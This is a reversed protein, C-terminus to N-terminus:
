QPSWAHTQQHEDLLHPFAFAKDCETCEYVVQGVHSEQHQKLQSLFNFSKYCMDCRYKGVEKEAHKRMHLALDEAKDFKANCHTCTFNKEPPPTQNPIRHKEHSRQEHRRVYSRLAFAKGCYKCAFPKESHHQKNQHELLLSKSSFQMSCASCNYLEEETVDIEEEEISDALPSKKASPNSCDSKSPTHQRYSCSHQRLADRGLFSEGCDTCLCERDSSLSHEDDEARAKSSSKTESKNESLNDFHTPFHGILESARTFCQECVPCMFENGTAGVGTSIADHSKLHSLFQQGTYSYNCQNCPYEKKSWPLQHVTKHKKLHSAHLFHKDCVSCSFTREKTAMCGHESLEEPDVFRKGCVGCRYKLEKSFVSSSDSLSDSKEQKEASVSSSPTGASTSHIKRHEARSSKSPFVQNCIDCPFNEERHNSMHEALQTAGTFSLQCMSCRYPRSKGHTPKHKRLAFLSIFGKGCLQCQFESKHMRQHQELQSQQFFCRGCEACEHPKEGLHFRQHDELIESTPFTKGCVHCPFYPASDSDSDDSANKGDDSESTVNGQTSSQQETSVKQQAARELEREKQHRTRIHRELSKKVCYLKKCFRCNYTENPHEGAYHDCLSPRTWFRNNCLKCLYPRQEDHYTKHDELEELTYFMNPCDPCSHTKTIGHIKMHKELSGKSSCVRQCKSCTNRKKEQEQRGHDELHSILMLGDTFSMDCESCQYKEKTSSCSGQVEKNGNSIEPSKDVSEDRSSFNTQLVGTGTTKSSDKFVIVSDALAFDIEAKLPGELEQKSDNKISVHGYRCKRSHNRYLNKNWFGRNCTKCNFPHQTSHIRRHGTLGAKSAFSMNCETCFFIKPKETNPTDDPTCIANPFASPEEHCSEDTPEEKINSINSLHHQLPATSEPPVMTELKHENLFHDQLEGFLSFRSSCYACSFGETSSQCSPQQSQSVESKSMSCSKKHEEFSAKHLHEGCGDCPIKSTKQKETCKILHRQVYDKRIFRQGCHDCAYPREGTHLRNHVKLQWNYEFTRPCYSCVYKHKKNLYPQISHLVRNRVGNLPKTVDESPQNEQPTSLDTQIPFKRCRKLKRHSKLTKEHSFASGCGSCKFLKATHFMTIHRSLRSQTPFTRSCVTCEFTELKDANETGYKNQWGKGVDDLSIKPIRVELRPRKGKCRGQHVKLYDYRSFCSDCAKCRYPKVENHTLIHRRLNRSKMFTKTCFKCKYEADAPPKLLMVRPSSMNSMKTTSDHKDPTGKKCVGTCFAEHQLCVTHASFRQGCHMCPYPQVGTHSVLHRFLLSRYRFRQPCHPCKLPLMKTTSPQPPMKDIKVNKTTSSKPPMKTTKLNEKASSQSPTKDMKLNVESTSKHFSGNPSSSEIKVSLIGGCNRQHQVLKRNGYYQRCKPCQLLTNLKHGNLHGQMRDKKWIVRGCIPCEYPKRGLSESAPQDPERNAAPLCKESHLRLYLSRFFRKGCNTCSYPKEGTHRIMHRLLCRRSTFKQKCFPCSSSGSIHTLCHKRHQHPDNFVEQCLSCQHQKSETPEKGSDKIHPQEEKPPPATNEGKKHTKLHRLLHAPYQFQLTCDPCQLMGKKQHSRNHQILDGISPLIKKCVTCQIRRQHVIKHGILYCLKKFGKGCQLCRYPKEGRHNREHKKLSQSTGFGKGCYHCSLSPSSEPDNPESGNDPTKTSRSTSVNSYVSHRYKVLKGTLKYLEHKKMHRSKGSPHRFVAPCLNCRYRMIKLTSSSQPPNKHENEKPPPKQENLKFTEDKIRQQEKNERSKAREKVLRMLSEKLCFTKLHRYRNSPLTFTAYCLPCRYKNGVKEKRNCIKERVCDRLHRARNYSYKFVRPCLPCKHEAKTENQLEQHVRKEKSEVGKGSSLKIAFPSPLAKGKHANYFHKKAKKSTSFIKGCIGCFRNSIDVLKIYCERLSTPPASPEEDKFPQPKTKSVVETSNADAVTQTPTRTQSAKCAGASRKHRTLTCGQAFYTGCENCKYPTKGTHSRMHKVFKVLKTFTLNCKKCTRLGLHRRTKNPCSTSYSQGGETVFCLHNESHENMLYLNCTKCFQFNHSSHCCHHHEILHDRNKTTHQCDACHYENTMNEALEKKIIVVPQLRKQMQLSSKLSISSVESHNFGDIYPKTVHLDRHHSPDFKSEDTDCSDERSLPEGYPTLTDFDDEMPTDLEEFSMRADEAINACFIDQVEAVLSQHPPQAKLSSCRKSEYNLCPDMDRGSHQPQVSSTIQVRQENSSDADGPTDCILAASIRESDESFIAKDENQASTMEDNVIPNTLISSSQPESHCKNDTSQVSNDSLLSGSALTPSNSSDNTIAANTMEDPITIRSPKGNMISCNLELCSDLVKVSQQNKNSKDLSLSGGTVAPDDFTNTLVHSKPHKDDEPENSDCHCDVTGDYSVVSNNETTTESAPHKSPESSSTKMEEEQCESEMSACDNDRSEHNPVQQEVAMLKELSSSEKEDQNDKNNHDSQRMGTDEHKSDSPYLEKGDNEHHQEEAGWSTSHTEKVSDAETTPLTNFTPSSHGHGTSPEIIEEQDTTKDKTCEEKGTSARLSSSSPSSANVEMPATMNRTHSFLCESPSHKTTLNTASKRVPHRKMFKCPPRTESDEDPDSCSSVDSYNDLFSTFMECDQKLGQIDSSYSSPFPESSPLGNTSFEAISNDLCRPYQNKVVPEGDTQWQTEQYYQEYVCGSNSNGINPNSYYNTDFSAATAEHSAASFEHHGIFNEISGDSQSTGRLTRSDTSLPPINPFYSDWEDAM